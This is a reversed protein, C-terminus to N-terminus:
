QTMEIMGLFIFNMASLLISMNKMSPEKESGEMLFLLYFSYYTQYTYLEPENRKIRSVSQMMDKANTLNSQEKSIQQFRDIRRYTEDLKLNVLSQVTRDVQKLKEACHRLKSISLDPFNETAELLLFNLVGYVKICDYPGRSSLKDILADPNPIDHLAFVVKRLTNEDLMISKEKLAETVFEEDKNM